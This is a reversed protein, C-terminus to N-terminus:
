TASAIFEVAPIKVVFTTGVNEETEFSLSGGHKRVIDYSISLGLGTGKGVPKTTFFPNFIKAQAQKPIGSGNDAIRIVVFNDELATSVQIKGEPKSEVAHIANGILNVFVQNLQAPFCDVLPLETYETTLTVDKDKLQHGIMLLCSRVSENLDAKKMEAEDLRSFNRMSRVLSTMQEFGTIAGNFLRETRRITEELEAITGNPMTRIEEMAALASELEGAYVSEQAQLAKILLASILSFRERIISVNNSAYGIPTNLEHAVGAVMQGLATMKESQILHNQTEAIRQLTAKLEDETKKRETIDIATGIIKVTDGSKDRVANGQAFLSVANGDPLNVRYEIQYPTGFRVSNFVVENLADADTSSLQEIITEFRIPTGVPIQHIHYLQESWTVDGSVVDMEWSGMNAIRQAERLSTERLALAEEQAKRETIDLIYGDIFALNGHEDFNAEGSERVWKISGDHTTIRYELSYPKQEDISSLITSDVSTRDDPYILSTFLRTALATPSNIFEAARYGTLSEIADSMFIVKWEVDSRYVVGPTNQIIAILFDESKRLQEEVIHRKTVDRGIGFVVAVDGKENRKMAKTTSVWRPSGTTLDMSREEINFVDSDHNVMLGVEDMRYQEALERPFFDFDTKGIVEGPTSKGLMETNAKNSVLFRGDKDKAYICDPLKDILALLLNRESLIREFEEPSYDSVKKHTTNQVFSLSM